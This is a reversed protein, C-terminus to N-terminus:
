RDDAHTKGERKSPESCTGSSGLRCTRARILRYMGLITPLSDTCGYIVRGKWAAYAAGEGLAAMRTLAVTGCIIGLFGIAVPYVVVDPLLGHENSIAGHPALALKALAPRIFPADCVAPLGPLDALGQCCSDVTRHSFEAIEM